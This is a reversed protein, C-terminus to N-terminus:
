VSLVYLIFLSLYSWFLRCSRYYLYSPYSRYSTYSLYPCILGFSGVLGILGILGIIISSIEFTNYNFIHLCKSFNDIFRISFLCRNSMKINGVCFHQLTNKDRRAIKILRYYYTYLFSLSIKYANMLYGSKYFTQSLFM